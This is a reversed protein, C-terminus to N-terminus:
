KRTVQNFAYFAIVATGAIILGWAISHYYIFWNVSLIAVGTIVLGAGVGVTASRFAENMKSSKGGSRPTSFAAEIDEPSYGASKLEERLEGDPYGNRMKRRVYGTLEERNKM